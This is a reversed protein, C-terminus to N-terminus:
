ALAKKARTRSKRINTGDDMWRKQPKIFYEFSMGEVPFTTINDRRIVRLSGDKNEKCEEVNVFVLKRVTPIMETVLVLVKLYKKKKKVMSSM